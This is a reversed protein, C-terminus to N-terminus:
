CLDLQEKQPSQTACVVWFVVVFVGYSAPFLVRSLRDILHVPVTDRSTKKRRQVAMISGNAEDEEENKVPYRGVVDTGYCNNRSSDESVHNDLLGLECKEHNDPKGTNRGKTNLLIVYELMTSFVFGFSVFLHCDIAKFYSVRPMRSNVSGLFYVITLVTTIGLAVRAPVADQPLWLAMFSLIVILYSPLFVQLVTYSTRRDFVFTAYVNSFGGSSFKGHKYSLNAGKYEYQAMADDYVEVVCKSALFNGWEYVLKSDALSFSEIVLDCKQRDLPYMQLQMHCAVKLAIRSMHTVHGNPLVFVMQNDKMVNKIESQKANLFITDPTWIKKIDNGSFSFTRDQGQALRIDRWWQINVLDLGYEMNAEDVEGFALIEFVINVKVPKGPVYPAISPDYNEMIKKFINTSNQIWERDKTANSIREKVSATTNSCNQADGLCEKDHISTANDSSDTRNDLHEKDELSTGNDRKEMDGGWEKEKIFTKNDSRQRLLFLWIILFRRTSFVNLEVYFPKWPPSVQFAM